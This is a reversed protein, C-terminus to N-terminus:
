FEFDYEGDGCEEFINVGKFFGSYCADEVEEAVFKYKGRVVCLKSIYREGITLLPDDNYTNVMIYEGDNEDQRLLVLSSTSTTPTIIIKFMKGSTTESCIYPSITAPAAALTSTTTSTVEIENSTTTQAATTTAVITTTTTVNVENATTTIDITSNSSQLSAATSTTSVELSSSDGATASGVTSSTASLATSSTTSDSATDENDVSSSNGTTPNGITVNGGEFFSVEETSNGEFFIFDDDMMTQNTLILTEINENNTSNTENISIAVSTTPNRTPNRTPNYTTLTPSYTPWPLTPSYSPWPASPSYTPTLGPELEPELEPVPAPAGGARSTGQDSEREASAFRIEKFADPFGFRFTLVAVATLTLTVALCDLYYKKVCKATSSPCNRTPPPSPQQRDDSSENDNGSVDGVIRREEFDDLVVEEGEEYLPNPRWARPPAFDMGLSSSQAELDELISQIRARENEHTSNGNNELSTKDSKSKARRSSTSTLFESSLLDVEDDQRRRSYNRRGSPM